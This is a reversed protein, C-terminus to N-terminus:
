NHQIIRATPNKYITIDKSTVGDVSPITAGYGDTVSVVEFKAPYDGSGANITANKIEAITPFVLGSSAITKTKEASVVGDLTVKYTLTLPYKLTAAADKAVTVTIDKKADDSACYETNAVFSYTARSNADVVDVNLYNEPGECTVDTTEIMVIRYSGTNLWKVSLGSKTDDIATSVFDTGSTADQFSTGNHKQVKWAFTSGSVKTLSYEVTANPAVSNTGTQHDQAMVGFSMMILFLVVSAKFLKNKM